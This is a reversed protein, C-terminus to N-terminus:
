WLQRGHDSGIQLDRLSEALAETSTHRLPPKSATSARESNDGSWRGNIGGDAKWATVNHIHKTVSELLMALAPLSEAKGPPKETM